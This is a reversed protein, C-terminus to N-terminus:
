KTRRQKEDSEKKKKIPEPIDDLIKTAERMNDQLEKLRRVLERNYVEAIKM